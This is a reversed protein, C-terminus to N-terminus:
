KNKHTEMNISLVDNDALIHGGVDALGPKYAGGMENILEGGINYMNVFPFLQEQETVHSTVHGSLSLSWNRHLLRIRTMEQDDIQECCHDDDKVEKQSNKDNNSLEEEKTEAEEFDKEYSPFTERLTDDFSEEGTEDVIDVVKAKYHYLSQEEKEREKRKEDAIKWVQHCLNFISLIISDQNPETLENTSYLLSMAMDVAVM